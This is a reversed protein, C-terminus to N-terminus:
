FVVFSKQKGSRSPFRSIELFGFGELHVWSAACCMLSFSFSFSFSFSHFSFSFSFSFSLSFASLLRLFYVCFTFVFLLCLFYVCNQSIESHNKFKKSIKRKSKTNVKKRQSKQTSKQTNVKKRKSKANVKQTKMTMKMKM